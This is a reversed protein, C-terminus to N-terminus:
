LVLFVHGAINIVQDLCSKRKGLWIIVRIWTETNKRSKLLFAANRTIIINKYIWIYKGRTHDAILFSLKKGITGVNKPFCNSGFSCSLLICDNWYKISAHLVKTYPPINRNGKECSMRKDSNNWLSRRAQWSESIWPLAELCFLFVFILYFNGARFSETARNM